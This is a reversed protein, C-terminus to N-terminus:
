TGKKRIGSEQNRIGEEQNRGACNQMVWDLYPQHGSEVPFAVFEPVDYPHLQSLRENLEDLRSQVTKIIMLCEAEIEVQGKWKYVSTLNPIINVCAALQEEVLRRAIRRAKSPDDITSYAIRVDTM